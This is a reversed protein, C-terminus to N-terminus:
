RFRLRRAIQRQESTLPVYAMKHHKPCYPGSPGRAAGCFHFDPTGPDGIPWRCGNGGLQDVLRDMRVGETKVVALRPAPAEKRAAAAKPSVPKQRNPQDLLGLARCRVIVDFENADDMTTAIRRSSWGLRKRDRLYQDQEPTWQRPIRRPERPPNIKREAKGHRQLAGIVACRSRNRGFEATVIKAIESLSKGEAWLAGAREIEDPRWYNEERKKVRM